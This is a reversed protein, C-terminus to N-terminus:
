NCGQRVLRLEDYSDLQSNLALNKEKSSFSFAEVQAAVFKSLNGPQVRLDLNGSELKSLALLQEVLSELRQTNAKAILLNKRDGADLETLNLQDEVPGKILTLPTRFEHSINAFFTSKAKDLERLKQTTKQRNRYQYFFFLGVLATLAIGGLLLNRQNRSQEQALEKQSTLLEIERDRSETQYVAEIEKIKESSQIAQLSDKLSTAREKYQFANRFDGNQAYAESLLDLTEQAVQSNQSAINLEEAEKLYSIAGSPQNKGLSLKALELHM